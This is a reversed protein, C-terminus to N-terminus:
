LKLRKVVAFKNSGDHFDLAAREGEFFQNMEAEAALHNYAKGEVADIVSPLKLICCDCIRLGLM